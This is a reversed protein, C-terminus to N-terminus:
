GSWEAAWGYLASKFKFVPLALLEAEEVEADAGSSAGPFRYVAHCLAMLHLDLELWEPYPKPSVLHWTHTLHPIMPIVLGSALLEDGIKIAKHTNEVPDPNSYPWNLWVLGLWPLKLGDQGQERMYRRQARVVSRPNSCPDTNVIPLREALWLPTTYHDSLPAGWQDLLKPRPERRRRPVDAGTRPDRPHIKFEPGRPQNRCHAQAPGEITQCLGRNKDPGASRPGLEARMAQLSRDSDAAM